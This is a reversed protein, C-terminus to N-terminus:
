YSIPHSMRLIGRRDVVRVSLPQASGSSRWLADLTRLNSARHNEPTALWSRTATLQVSGDELPRAETFFISGVNKRLRQSLRELGERFRTFFTDQKDDPEGGLRGM